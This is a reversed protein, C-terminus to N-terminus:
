HPTRHPELDMLDWCQRRCGSAALLTASDSTDWNHEVAIAPSLGTWANHGQKGGLLSPQECRLWWLDALITHQLRVSKSSCRRRPDSRQSTSPLCSGMQPKTKQRAITTALGCSGCRQTRDRDRDSPEAVTHAPSEPRFTSKLRRTRLAASHTCQKKVGERSRLRRSRGHDGSQIRGKEKRGRNVWSHGGESTDICPDGLRTQKSLLSDKTSSCNDLKSYSWPSLSCPREHQWAASM